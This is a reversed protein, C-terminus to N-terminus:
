KYKIFTSFRKIGRFNFMMNIFLTGLCWFHAGSGIGWNNFPFNPQNKKKLKSNSLKRRKAPEGNLTSFIDAYRFVSRSVIYISTFTTKEKWKFSCLKREGFSNSHFHIHSRFKCLGRSFQTSGFAFLVPIKLFFVKM